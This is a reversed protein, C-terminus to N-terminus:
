FLSLWIEHYKKDIELKKLRELFEQKKEEYNSYDENIEGSNLNAAVIIFQEFDKALPLVQSDQPNYIDFGEEVFLVEGNAFHETGLTVCILDTNYSGVQYMKYKEMFEKPFFSDNLADTISDELTEFRERPCLSFMGVCVGLLNYKKAVDLYSEPLDGIYAKLKDEGERSIGPMYIQFAKRHIESSFFEKESNKMEEILESMNNIM